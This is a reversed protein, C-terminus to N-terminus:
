LLYSLVLASAIPVTVNDNLRWPLSEVLSAVLATRGAHGLAVSFALEPMMWGLLVTAGLTAFVFFALSGVYTKNKNWALERARFHQGFLTASGDGLALVAWSAAVISLPFFFVLGLLVAVYLMAGASYRQESRRYFHSRWGAKPLAFAIILFLGALVAAAQWATLWKLSFAILLLGIHLGQRKHERGM